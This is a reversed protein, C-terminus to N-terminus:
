HLFEESTWEIVNKIFYFMKFDDTIKIKVQMNILYNYM